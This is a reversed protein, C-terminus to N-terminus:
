PDRTVTTTTSATVITQAIGAGADRSTPTVVLPKSPDLGMLAYLELLAEGMSAPEVSASRLADWVAAAVQSPTSGGGAANLVEGMTGAENNDVAVAGWVAAALTQPSLETFPTFEGVLALRGRLDALGIFSGAFDGALPVIMSLSSSGAFAFTAAGELGLVMSLSAAPVGFTITSDGALTVQMSLSAAGDLLGAFAGTMLGGNVLSAAGVLSVSAAAAMGGATAPRVIAQVGYGEPTSSTPAIYESVYCARQAGANGKYRYLDERGTHRYPSWASAARLGNPHVAM